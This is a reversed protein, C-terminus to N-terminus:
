IVQQGQRLTPPDNQASISCRYGSLSNVTWSATQHSADPMEPTSTIAEEARAPRMTFSRYERGAWARRTSRRKREFSCCELVEVANTPAPAGTSVILRLGLKAGVM